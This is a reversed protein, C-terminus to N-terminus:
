KSKCFLYKRIMGISDRGITEKMYICIAKAQKTRCFISIITAFEAVFICFIQNQSLIDPFIDCIKRRKKTPTDALFQMRNQQNFCLRRHNQRTAVIAAFSLRLYCNPLEEIAILM